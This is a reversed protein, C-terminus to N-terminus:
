DCYLKPEVRDQLGKPSALIESLIIARRVDGVDSFLFKKGSPRRRTVTTEPQDPLRRHTRAAMRRRREMEAREKKHRLEHQEYARKRQRAQREAEKQRAAKRRQERLQEVSRARRAEEPLPPPAAERATSAAQRRVPREQPEQQLERRRPPEVPAWGEDEEHRERQKPTGFLTEFLDSGPAVPPGPSESSPRSPGKRKAERPTTEGFLQRRTEEPLDAHSQKQKKALDRAKEREAREKRAQLVWSAGMILVFILPGWLEGM